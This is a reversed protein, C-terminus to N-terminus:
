LKSCKGKAVNLSERGDKEMTVWTVSFIGSDRRVFVGAYGESRECFYSSENCNDLMAADDGMRKVVYSGSENTLLWKLPEVNFMVAEIPRGAGDRVGAAKEAICLYADAHAGSCVLMGSCVFSQVKFM